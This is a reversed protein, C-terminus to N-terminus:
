WCGTATEIIILIKAISYFVFYRVIIAAFICIFFSETLFKPPNKEKTSWKRLSPNSMITSLANPLLLISALYLLESIKRDNAAM